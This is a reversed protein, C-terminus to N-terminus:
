KELCNHSHQDPVHLTALNYYTEQIKMQKKHDEGILVILSAKIKMLTEIITFMNCENMLLNEGLEFIDVQYNKKFFSPFMIKIKDWSSFNIPWLEERIDEKEEKISEKLFPSKGISEYLDAKKQLFLARVLKAKM